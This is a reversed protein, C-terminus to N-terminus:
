APWCAWIRCSTTKHLSPSASPRAVGHSVWRWRGRSRCARGDSPDQCCRAALERVDCARWQKEELWVSEQSRSDLQGRKVTPKGLQVFNGFSKLPAQQSCVCAQLRSTLFCLQPKIPPIKKSHTKFCLFGLTQKALVSCSCQASGM